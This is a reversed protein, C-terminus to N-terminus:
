FYGEVKKKEMSASEDNDILRGQRESVRSNLIELIITETRLPNFTIDKFCNTLLNWENEVLDDLITIVLKHRIGISYMIEYKIERLVKNKKIFWPIM